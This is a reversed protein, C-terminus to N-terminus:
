YQLSTYVDVHQFFHRTPGATELKNARKLLSYAYTCTAQRACWGKIHALHVHVHIHNAVSTPGEEIM